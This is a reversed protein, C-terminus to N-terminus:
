KTLRSKRWKRWTWKIYALGEGLQVAQWFTM